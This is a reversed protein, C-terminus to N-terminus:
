IPARRSRRPGRPAAAKPSPAARRVIQLTSNSIAGSPAAVAPQPLAYSRCVGDRSPCRADSETRAAGYLRRRLRLPPKSLAFTLPNPMAIARPGAGGHPPPRPAPLPTRRRRDPAADFASSLPPSRSHPPRQRPPVLRRPPAPAPATPSSPRCPAPTRSPPSSACGAAVAPAPSSMSISVRCMLAAWTWAGQAGAARPSAEHQGYDVNAGEPRPRGGRPGWEGRELVYDGEPSEM